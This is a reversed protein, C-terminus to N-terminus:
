ARGAYDVSVSGPGLVTEGEAVLERSGDVSLGRTRVVIEQGGIVLHLFVPVRGPHEGCLQRVAALAVSPDEGPTFRIRCANPEPAGGGNRPRNASDALAQELLRVDEALVVRGKDGDDVRGRVLVAESSRLCAAASKFPEPFVTVEVTGDMDELTFFAMRNGGKTSTEKLGTAHGFLLVRSGHGKAALDASTTVGLPEVVGRYRALPHGSIYFGLVEKEFALRQDSEWEPTVEAPASSRAPASAPIMEFFSGQGEARDRQQRQGSELAVDTTALLHARTLGLSDFAGAKILSEVVRRNVLRLDVRACFDELTKFTGEGSRSKLISQMAAEGVNKIAALGFRVTDGAVSFQVASVNVDPPVVQIGMARCEEIYKVIKDTDGMESTLLAAMFEVPYNAKFYATQYAVLGYAAAHSKNFGYGAFKEMLEWVREAKAPTTNRERCGGIFKERQKAMLERDKKGMARRLIDAEGMTFGAMESAIQMIQEQYVMIGYTERTFKEMAPHEYTIKSRGHKRQIFDPILEMPGPRYLSVMAILDELQEPRLGRLADRMGSSELQFVGFTKAESLMEYTKKDDLPLRELDLELGRSEKILAVTNALVTLTRLGLFDMKLLGLKEIPGMAFGTILEPRKPDKYLPIYEELPEDSIVVASAHVSAHRTCGELTRAIEWMEKVNPQSRVAEALPLSKQYADDLTINLPFNPVLKAIRDVDGYAMGLVRGVDRIAAKAGLTGFTIIHAVRDRGYREAVYRIVEDRRDDSFDIDMDPMSIREPNLFREFLLGYRIPDVNTIALCYATLSGASSGRGPGVAIGQERAYRIFDWVVLFYGAFGMKEIVALEHALRTEIADGPNAGYRRKLGAHALEHLYSDLTHESPVVYRPLHFQNFELTLNCREAVALTNSCAEPLEAFVRAMEEASKIYFEQTSFRFRSTDQLNTGTQICLLAEHARSHGNELYHSDNTGVVPAGISKAIRLTEAMVREQEAIGHAQVEMFYHDKGFVEQYWGATERARVADGASLMRSVESNLCGSLVLLGDAHQALLERDVRPKYYFGELFARSVLKILNQYGTRNRVLVTLHNAGEYGGDQSGREKRGGPAVYLECGLIPKVGAKQAALYFDIAGFLNGHDTLAIAPFKLEKAKAVLKELQAAGDLLSYESHVHLHVFESHQM